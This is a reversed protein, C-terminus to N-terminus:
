KQGGQALAAAITYEPVVQGGALHQNIIKEAKEPTMRVYTVKDKGGEHVEVVPEFQCVGICGTQKVTVKDALGAKEVGDVFADFVPRAGAAIGCTALGVVVRIKGSGEKPIVTDTMREKIATLEELSKM